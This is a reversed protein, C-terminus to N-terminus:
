IARAGEIALALENTMAALAPSPALARAAALLADFRVLQEAKGRKFLPWPDGHDRACLAISLLNDIKDALTIAQADVGKSPFKALYASKRAEWPLSKDEESVATVLKAVRAGFRKELEAATVGCDEITDHLAGAAQVEEDWGHRALIAVVGAVHSVYPIDANPYKRRQDRHWDAAADLASKLLLM